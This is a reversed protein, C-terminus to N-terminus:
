ASLRGSNAELTMRCRSAGRGDAVEAAHRSTVRLANATGFSFLAARLRAAFDITEPFRGTNVCAKVEALAQAAEFQNEALVLVISPLGLCCREWSTSGAGGIALDAEIMLAAMDAVDVRVETPWPMAAATRRVEDLHPASAGLVVTIRCADPLVCDRLASLVANTANHPDTGGMTILLPALRPDRRRALSEARRAAFEPRLLAYKPGILRTCEDPVLGDYDEANRGLNQDLLLDCRHPRDALDDIVMLPTGAPVAAAEWAADLAYHDVIVREPKLDDLMRRTEAADQQWPVGLLAAHAPGNAPQTVNGPAPLARVDFGKAAIAEIMNGPLERCIFTANRGDQRLAEALALCRMVHGTGIEISVDTRFPYRGTLLGYRTPTCVSSPTHADTFRMGGEALRDIGPTPIKSEPQYCQPDGWGMDDALIIVLNPNETASTFTCIGLFCPLFIAFLRIM